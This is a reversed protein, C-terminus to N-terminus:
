WLRGALLGGVLASARSAAAAPPHGSSRSALYAAAFADGAGTPDVSRLVSRAPVEVLKGKAFLMSGKAGRTVVVEPVGLSDLTSADVDGLAAHAEEEALKLVDVHLLLEPDFAADLKLRGTRSPRVLGQGDLSLRRGRALVSLTGPPFDSRVLPAVHIWEAPRIAEAVWGLAEEPTWTDGIAEVTMERQGDRNIITFKATSRAPRSVVPVGLAILERTPGKTVILAPRGLVRLARAAYYPAGGTRPPAGDVVDRSLNGIVAVPRV